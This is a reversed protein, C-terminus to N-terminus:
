YGENQIIGTNIDVEKQPIPLIFKSNPYLVEKVISTTNDDRVVNQKTRTLDFLRHGEFCLEKAREKDILNAIEEQTNELIIIENVEKQYARALLVKMDNKALDIADLNNNAEARILYMESTRLVNIDYRRDAIAVNEKVYKLTGFIDTSTDLLQLRIDDPNENLLNTLKNSAYGLPSQLSYFKIINPKKFKGNLKFLSEDDESLKLFMDLYNQGQSLPTTTIALTSYDIADTWNEMYLNVRALLGYVARKSAYFSSSSGAESGYITESEKLDKIIQTYTEKVTNRSVNDDSSPTKLLVPIGIHSADTTFNYPQAYVRVLDFHILARLFLAEAKIIELEDKNQPYALLLSPYYELINNVNVLAEYADTWIGGVATIEEASNSNYNYQSIMNNDGAIELQLMDGAVDPYLIFEGGYYKYVRSYAGPLAARVGDMDSFFVPITSKGIQDVELFDNCGSLLSMSIIAILTKIYKM